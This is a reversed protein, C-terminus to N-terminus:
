RSPKPSSLFIGADGSNLFSPWSGTFCVLVAVFDDTFASFMFIKLVAYRPQPMPGCRQAM